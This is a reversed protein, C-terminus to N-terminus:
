VVVKPLLVITEVPVVVKLGSTVVSDSCIVKVSGFVVQVPVKTKVLEEACGVRDGLAIEVEDFAGCIRVM